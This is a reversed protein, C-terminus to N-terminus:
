TSKLSNKSFDYLECIKKFCNLIQEIFDINYCIKKENSKGWNKFQGLNLLLKFVLISNNCKISNVESLFRSDTITLSLPIM